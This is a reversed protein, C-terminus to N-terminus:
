CNRQSLQSRRSKSSPFNFTIVTFHRGAVTQRVRWEGGSKKMMAFLSFLINVSFM